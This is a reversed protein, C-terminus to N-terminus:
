EIGAASKGAAVNMYELQKEASQGTIDAKM